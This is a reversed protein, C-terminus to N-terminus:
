DIGLLPYKLVRWILDFARAYECLEYYSNTGLKQKIVKQHTKVTNQSIFLQEATNNSSNGLAMLKLIERQRLTLNSFKLTNKRSFNNESLFRSAKFGINSFIDIALKIALLPQM